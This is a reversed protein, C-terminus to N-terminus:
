RQGWPWTLEGARSTAPTRGRDVAAGVVSETGGPIRRGRSRARDAGRPGEGEALPVRARDRLGAVGLGGADRAVRTRFRLRARPRRLLPRRKTARRSGVLAELSTRSSALARNMVSLVPAGLGCRRNRGCGRLIRFRSCALGTELREPFAIPAGGGRARPGTRNEGRVFPVKLQYLLNEDEADPLVDLGYRIRSLDDYVLTGFLRDWVSFINGYNTDTWPAQFHHHFKHLNPTVFLTSLPRDLWLPVEVNAHTAYTFFVTTMRYVLYFAIPAGVIVITLLAFAERMVYDGPHHRTGTTADVKVDSHHVMHFRWMFPVKHLFVHVGYQAVLDFLLIAILLEAWVPLEVLHLLGLRHAAVWRFVGVSAMTFATNIALTTALFVFNVRAHAWKAYDFRFLPRANELSWSLSLCVLIWLAKQWTPMHEFFQLFATM